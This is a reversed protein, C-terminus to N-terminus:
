GRSVEIAEEYVKMTQRAAKEWTFEELVRKRANRGLESRLGGDKLLEITYRAIDHPDYPNIHSGCREGGKPVVQERLGSTGRAGVVVPKGMAMAETCVIGFPEYKSPFVAVDCAAYHLIREEEAVYKFELVVNEELGLNAVLHRILEEQDGKGLVVLKANPIDKLIIPMALLLMDAGKMWALRGLFLIMPEGDGVNMGRRFKLVEERAFREPRYKEPDVGNHVVRIKREEYGLSILEDRMAYSVTVMLDAMGGAKEEMAKITPSGNGTRGHETSHFHFVFPKQLSRKSVCGAWAALWDHAVVIDVPRKEVRVLYNILKTSSLVNFVMTEGFLKQAEIPWRRVDEPVTLPLVEVIDALLPRHVEIGEWIERTPREGTNRAFVTVRHGLRLFERTMEMAYTGLGGRFFPPYEDVFYVIEM